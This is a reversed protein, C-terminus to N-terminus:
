LINVSQAKQCHNGMRIEGPKGIPRKLYEFRFDIDAAVVDM